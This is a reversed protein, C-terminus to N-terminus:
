PRIADLWATLVSAGVLKDADGMDTWFGESLGILQLLDVAASRLAGPFGALAGHTVKIVNRQGLPQDPGWPSGSPRCPGQSDRGHEATTLAPM